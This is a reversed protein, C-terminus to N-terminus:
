AASGGGVQGASMAPEGRAPAAAASPGGARARGARGDADAAGSGAQSEAWSPGFMPLVTAVVYCCGFVVAAGAYGGAGATLGAIPGGLPTGAVSLTGTLASVRGMLAEPIREYMVASLIPSVFGLALGSAGWVAVTGWVPVGLALFAIRPGGGIAFCVFYVVRRNLRGALLSACISGLMATTGVVSTVLGIAVPGGHHRAWLPLVVSMVGNDLMNTATVMLTLWLLARDARLFRFGAALRSGFSEEAEAAASLESPESPEASPVDGAGDAVQRGMSWAVIAAAAGFSAADLAVAPLPGGAAVLAGAVAPGISGALRTVTGNLGTVRELATGSEQAVQPVLASKASDGPGRAAGAVAAVAALLWLPLLGAVHLLPIAGTAVLSAGDAGISVRRAGRRDIVPGSALRTALYPVLACFSVLGTATASGTTTMVYWPVAIMTIQTGTLSVANATLLGVLGHRGSGGARRGVAGVTDATSGSSEM